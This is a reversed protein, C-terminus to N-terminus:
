ATALIPLTPSEAGNADEETIGLVFDVPNVGDVRVLVDGNDDPRFTQVPTAGSDGVLWLVFARDEDLVPLGEGDIVLADEGSSYVVTVTGDLQGDLVRAVADDAQVVNEVRDAIRDDNTASESRVFVIGVGALLVLAAAASLTPIWRARRRPALDVVPSAVAEDDITASASADPASATQPAQAIADLVSARLREPPTEAVAGHLAAATDLAEDVENHLEADEALLADLELEDTVTLEGLAALAILEDIREDTRKDM